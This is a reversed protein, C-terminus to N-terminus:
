CSDILELWKYGLYHLHDPVSDPEKYQDSCTPDEGSLDCIKYTSNVNEYFVERPCHRYGFALPPM